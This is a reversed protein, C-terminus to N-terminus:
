IHILSLIDYVFFDSDNTLVPCNWHRALAAIQRDAEFDCTVYAVDLVQLVRVFCSHTLVPLLKARRGHAAINSMHVRHRARAVSTLFKHGDSAYAGDFVVYPIVNCSRLAAFFTECSRAFQDYDGGYESPVHFHYYLFHYLNNGDIIIPTDHLRFDTLLEPHADVFTTLGRIGMQADTRCLCIDISVM